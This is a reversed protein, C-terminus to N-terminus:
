FDVTLWLESFQNNNNNNNNNLVPSRSPVCFNQMVQREEETAPQRQDKYVFDASRDLDEEPAEEEVAM